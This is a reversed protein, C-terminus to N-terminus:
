WFDSKLGSISSEAQICKYRPVVREDVTATGVTVMLSAICPLPLLLVDSFCSRLIAFLCLNTLLHKIDDTM